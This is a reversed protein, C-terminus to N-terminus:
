SSRTVPNPEASASSTESSTVPATATATVHRAPGHVTTMIIVRRVVRREIMPRQLQVTAAAGLVPDHGAAVRQALFALMLLFLAAASPAVLNPARRRRRAGQRDTMTGNVSM